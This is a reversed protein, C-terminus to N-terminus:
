LTFVSCSPISLYLPVSPASRVSRIFTSERNVGRIPDSGPVLVPGVHSGTHNRGLNTSSSRGVCLIQGTGTSPLSRLLALQDSSVCLASDSSFGPAGASGIISVTSLGATGLYCQQTWM